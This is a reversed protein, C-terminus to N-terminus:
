GARNEEGRRGKEKDGQGVCGKLKLLLLEVVERKKVREESGCCIFRNGTREGNGKLGRSGNWTLTHIFDSLRLLTHVAFIYPLGYVPFLYHDVQYRVSPM